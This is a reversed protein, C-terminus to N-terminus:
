AASKKPSAAPDFHSFAYFRASCDDCRYVRVHIARLLHKEIPGRRHSRATEVSQCDPCLRRGAAAVSQRATGHPQLWFQEIEPMATMRDLLADM